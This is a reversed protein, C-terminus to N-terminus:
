PRVGGIFPDGAAKRRVWDVERWGVPEIEPLAPQVSYLRDMRSRPDEPLEDSVVLLDTDSEAVFDGRAVSGFVLARCRTLGLAGV